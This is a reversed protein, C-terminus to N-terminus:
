RLLYWVLGTLAALDVCVSWAVYAKFGWKM